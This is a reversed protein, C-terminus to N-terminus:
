IEMIKQVLTNIKDQENEIDEIRIKDTFDVGNSERYKKIKIIVKEIIQNKEQEPVINFTLYAMRGASDIQLEEIKSNLEDKNELMDLVGDFNTQEKYYLYNIIGILLNRECMEYFDM